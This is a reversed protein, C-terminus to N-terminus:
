EVKIGAARVVPEWRESQRKILERAAEPTSVTPELGIPVLLDKTKSEAYIRRVQENLRDVLVRPTEAPAMLFYHLRAEFDPVGSEAVTPVNPLVDLRAAGSTALARVKGSSVFPMMASSSIFAAEVDGAVLAAAAPAGGRYAVHQGKVRTKLKLYEFALQGPAGLGGSSFNLPNTQSYEILEALTNAPVRPNVGLVLDYSGMLSIPALADPDFPLKAYVHPNVTLITEGVAILMSGDPKASAVAATGISGGAGPRNEVIFTRGLEAQFGEALIRAAIDLPGGAAYPLIIRITGSPFEQAATPTLAASACTLALTALLPVFRLGFSQAVIEARAPTQPM